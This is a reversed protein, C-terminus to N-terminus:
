AHKKYEPRKFEFIAFVVALLFAIFDTIPAAYLVGDLGMFTPLIFMLPVILLIQRTLSLIVGRTPKGIASFFNAVTMQVGTAPIMFLFIRMTKQAFEAYFVDGSGFISVIYQPFLQFCLFGILAIGGCVGSAIICVRRSRDYQRAGYNFGAIPQLGQAMGVFVSILISNVKMVVGFAALPTDWDAEALEMMAYTKLQSNMVIQVICIALQNVCNSMGLSAINLMKKPQPIFSRREIRVAKFRRLYSLAVSCSIVQSIATAAAAGSMGWNFGWDCVFLADLGINIVAGIVMCMMSFRPAGDARIFNSTVNSIILFPMGAIIYNVYEIALTLTKGSGGFLTLLPERFIFALVSYSVSLILAFSLANGICKGAEDKNGKGLEISFRSAGGVGALVSIAICITTLPFAVTTAANGLKGVYNGIFMQDVINYLSSVLMAVVSPLAFKRLLTTIKEFGLPNKQTEATM